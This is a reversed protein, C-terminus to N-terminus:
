VTCMSFLSSVARVDVHMCGGGGRWGYGKKVRKCFRDRGDKTIKRGGALIYGKGGRKVQAWTANAM